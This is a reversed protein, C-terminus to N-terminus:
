PLLAAEAQRRLVLGRLVRGGGRTWKMLEARAGEWDEADIKRRLTSARYRSAGLNFVFSTIAALCPPAQILGPSARLADQMYRPLMLDLLREAAEQSIAPDTPAVARGDAYHTSGYGITWVNAPCLYPKLRLGEFTAVIPRALTLAEASPSGSM